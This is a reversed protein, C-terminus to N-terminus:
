SAPLGVPCSSAPAASGATATRTRRSTSSTTRSRTTSRGRRGRDGDHDRRLRRADLEAQFMDRSAESPPASRTTPGTCRRATSRASTTARGCAGADPRPGGLVPTPRGRALHRGPRLRRARGRHPRHPRQLGGRVDPEAHLRGRLRGRDHLRRRGALLHARRGLLLGDRRRAAGHRGPVAAAAADRAGRAARAGADADDRGPLADEPTVM